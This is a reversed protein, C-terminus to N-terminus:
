WKGTQTFMFVGKKNSVVIDPRRDRNLDAVEFKTGVGSDGDILIPDYSVQKGKRVGRLWYLNAPDRAGVDGWGHAWFRKGTVLDQVGDGDLDAGVLAHTSGTLNTFVTRMAFDGHANQEAVWIGFNHASSSIVDPRGDGTVDTVIMQACEEGLGQAHFRWPGLAKRGEKPQEWWGSACLVDKRGDGNLDGIGLGHSYRFTGPIQKAPSGTESIQRAKWPKTPNIDPELWMMTGSHEEGPPQVGMVLVPRKDSFLDAFAPSENCASEAILHEKWHRSAGKPNEQWAAATGPMGITIQDPWGDRNVDASWVLFANSYTALGDALSAPPRIEHRQGTRGDYWFDGVMIDLQRDRNV